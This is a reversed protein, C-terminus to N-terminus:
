SLQIRSASCRSMAPDFGLAVELFGVGPIQKGEQGLIQHVNLLAPSTGHCEPVWGALGLFLNECFQRGPWRESNGLLLLLADGCCAFVADSIFLM